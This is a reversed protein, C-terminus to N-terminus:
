QQNKSGLTLEGRGRERKRERGKGKGVRADQGKEWRTAQCRPEGHHGMARGPPAAGTARGPAGPAAGHRTRPAAGAARGPAGTDRGPPAAGLAAEHCPGQRPEGQAARGAHGGARAARERV